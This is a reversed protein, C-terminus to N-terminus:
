ILTPEGTILMTGTFSLQADHPASHTVNTIIAPFSWTLTPNTPFVIQYNNRTGIDFLHLMGLPASGNHTSNNPLYNGEISLEVGKLGQLYERWRDDGDHNTIDVDDASFATTISQLEAITTFIETPSGGDGVKFKTGYGFTANSLPM